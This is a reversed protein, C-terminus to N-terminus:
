LGVVQRHTVPKVQILKNQWRVPAFLGGVHLQKSLIQLTFPAWADVRKVSWPLTQSTRLHTSICRICHTLRCDALHGTVKRGLLWFDVVNRRWFNLSFQISRACATSASRCDVGLQISRRRRRRVPQRCRRGYWWWFWQRGPWWWWTGASRPVQCVCVCM